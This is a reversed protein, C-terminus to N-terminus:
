TGLRVLISMGRKKKEFRVTWGGGESWGGFRFVHKGQSVSVFADETGSSKILECAENEGDAVLSVRDSSALNTNEKALKLFKNPGRGIEQLHQLGM